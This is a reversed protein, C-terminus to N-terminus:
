NTEPNPLLLLTEEERQQELTLVQFSAANSPVTNHPNILKWGRRIERSCSVTELTICFGYSKRTAPTNTVRFVVAQQKVTDQAV